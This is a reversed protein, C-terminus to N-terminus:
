PAEHLNVLQLAHLQGVPGFVVATDVRIRPSITDPVAFTCPMRGAVPSSLNAGYRGSADIPATTTIGRSCEIVVTSNALPNGTNQFVQGVVDASGAPWTGVGPNDSCATIISIGLVLARLRM